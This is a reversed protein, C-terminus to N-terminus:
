FNINSKSFKVAIIALTIFALNFWLHQSWSLKEIILNFHCPLTEQLLLMSLIYLSFVVMTGIFGYLGWKHTKPVILLASIIIEIIPVAWAVFEAFQGMLSVKKLGILFRDHEIIKEYASFLFLFMCIMCIGFTVWGKFINTLKFAEKRISTTEM